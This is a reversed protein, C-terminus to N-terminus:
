TDESHGHAERHAIRVAWVFAIILLAVGLMGVAALGVVAAMDAFGQLARGGPWVLCLVFFGLCFVTMLGLGVSAMADTSHRPRLEGQGVPKRAFLAAMVWSGVAFGLLMFASLWSIRLAAGVVFCLIGVGIGCWGIISYRMVLRSMQEDRPM